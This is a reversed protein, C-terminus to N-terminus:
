RPAVSCKASPNVDSIIYVSINRDTLFVMFENKKLISDAAAM